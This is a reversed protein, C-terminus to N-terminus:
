TLARIDEALQEATPMSARQVLVPIVDMGQRLASSIELRVLDNPEDLRRTGDAQSADLV